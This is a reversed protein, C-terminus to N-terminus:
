HVHQASTSNTDLRGPWSMLAAATAYKQDLTWPPGISKGLSAISKLLAADLGKERVGIVPLRCERAAWILVDRFMEGEATHILAHSALIGKLGPLLKGAGLQVACGTVEHGQAQLAKVTASLAEVALARSSEIAKRVFEEAMPLPMEAAAHFPQKSGPRDPDAIVIRRRELVRPTHSGWTVAVLAAWGSHARFGLATQMVNNTPLGPASTV